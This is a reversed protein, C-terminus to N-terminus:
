ESYIKSYIDSALDIIEELTGNKRLDKFVLNEVSYEGAKTDYLGFKRDAMIKAKFREM